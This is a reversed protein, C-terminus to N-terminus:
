RIEYYCTSFHCLSIAAMSSRQYLILMPGPLSKTGDPVCAMVHVLTSQPGRRWVTDIHRLSNFGYIPRFIQSMDNLEGVHNLGAARAFTVTRNIEHNKNGYEVLTLQTPMSVKQWVCDIVFVATYSDEQQHLRSGSFGCIQHKQNYLRM